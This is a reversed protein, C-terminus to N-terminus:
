SIRLLIEVLQNDTSDNESLIRIKIGMQVLEEARRHKSSKTYEGPKSTDQAGVILM